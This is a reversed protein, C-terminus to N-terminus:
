PSAPQVAAGRETQTVGGHTDHRGALTTRIEAFNYNGAAWELISNRNLSPYGHTPPLDPFTSLFKDLHNKFLDLSTLEKIERPIVNFIAPGTFSFSNHIFILVLSIVRLFVM